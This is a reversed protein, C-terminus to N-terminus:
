DIVYATAFVGLMTFVLAIKLAAGVVMGLWTAFGIRGARLADRETIYEGAAAGVFPGILLGLFGGLLGVVTGIAAGAVALGSAGSRKAGLSAAIFDVAFALLTLFALIGLALGGIKQFDEIWAALVLGAFVMPPGPLAPLILGAIGALVLLVAAIWLLTSEM